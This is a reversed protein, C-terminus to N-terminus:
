FCINSIPYVQTATFVFLIAPFVPEARLINIDITITIRFPRSIIAVFTELVSLETPRPEPSPMM